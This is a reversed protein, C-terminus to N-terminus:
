LPAIPFDAATFRAACGEFALGIGARFWGYAIALCRSARMTAVRTVFRFDPIPSKKGPLKDVFLRGAKGPRSRMQDEFPPVILFRLRTGQSVCGRERSRSM